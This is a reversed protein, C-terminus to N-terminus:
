EGALQALSETDRGLDHRRVQGIPRVQFAQFSEDAFARIQFEEDIVRPEARCASEM